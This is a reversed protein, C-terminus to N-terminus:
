KEQEHFARERIAILKDLHRQLRKKRNYIDEVPVGLAEAVVRPKLDDMDLMAIIMEQLEPDDSTDDYVAEFFVKAEQEDTEEILIKEPSPPGFKLVAELEIKQISKPDHVDEQAVNELEEFAVDRNERLKLWWDMVSDVQNILWDELPIENPDWKRTGEFVSQIIYSVADEVSLGRAFVTTSTVRYRSSGRWIARALMNKGLSDWDASELLAYQEPSIQHEEEM